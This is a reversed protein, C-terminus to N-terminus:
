RFVVKKDVLNQDLYGTDGCMLCCDRCTHKDDKGVGWYKASDEYWGGFCVKEGAQCSVTLTHKVSDKLTWHTTASPWVWGKRKQSYVAINISYKASNTLMFTASGKTSDLPTLEPFPEM